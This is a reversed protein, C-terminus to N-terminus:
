KAGVYFLNSAARGLKGIAGFFDDFLWCYNCPASKPCTPIPMGLACIFMSVGIVIMIALFMTFEMWRTEATGLACLTLSIVTTVVLGLDDILLGFAIVALTTFFYPRWSWNGIADGNALLGKILLTLGTLLLLVSLIAPLVGTGPRQWVGMPYDKGIYLAIAGFAMFLIGSAFDQSGKIRM